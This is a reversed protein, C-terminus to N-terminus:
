LTNNVINLGNDNNVEGTTSRVQNSILRWVELTRKQKEIWERSLNPRLRKGQERAGMNDRALRSQFQRIIQEESEDDEEEVKSEIVEVVQQEEVQVEEPKSAKKKNKKKKKGDEKPANSPQEIYNLLDGLDQRWLEKQGPKQPQPPPPPQQKM